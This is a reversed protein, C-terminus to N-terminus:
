ATNWWRRRSIHLAELPNEVQRFIGAATSLATTPIALDAL